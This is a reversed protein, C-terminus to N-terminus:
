RQDINHVNLRTVLALYVISLSGHTYSVLRSILSEDLTRTWHRRKWEAYPRQKVEARVSRELKRKSLRGGSM